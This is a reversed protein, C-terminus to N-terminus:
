FTRYFSDRKEWVEDAPKVWFSTKSKPTIDLFQKRFIKAALSTAGVGLVYVVLLLVLNVGDAALEAFDRMGIKFGRWFEVLGM